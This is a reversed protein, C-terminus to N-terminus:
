CNSIQSQCIKTSSFVMEGQIEKYRKEHLALIVPQLPKWYVQEHCYLKNFWFKEFRSLRRYDLELYFCRNGSAGGVSGSTFIERM